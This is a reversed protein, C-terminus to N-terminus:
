QSPLAALLLAPSLGHTGVQRVWLPQGASSPALEALTVADMEFSPTSCTWTRVPRDPPGIGVLYSESEEVLPVEVDAPWLWAGRARRTWCSEFRGDATFVARPHVPSLPRLTRGPERLPATVPDADGPGIAAIDPEGRTAGSPAPVPTLRDDIMVVPAGAAHGDFAAAETGGRGRLLGEFRWRKAGIPTARAFQLIESGVLLRNAGRALAEATVPEFAADTTVLEAEFAASREIRLAPSPALPSVLTGQIANPRTTTAIRVLQGDISAFLGTSGSRGTATVAAFARVGDGAGFGDAPLEFFDLVTPGPLIDPLPSLGGADAGGAPAAGPVRRVLDLEVGRERWEWATVLWDGPHGPVRVIRGPAIRPDLEAMRWAIRDRQWRSRQTAQESLGKADQAALTAPLEITQQGTAPTPGVARQIGPQYDRAPDYYRIARPPVPASTARGALMGSRRGFDSDEWGRSAPPLSLAEAPEALDRFTLAQSGAECTLPYVSDIAQLTQVLPGGDRAFGQMGPLAVQSRALDDGAVIDAFAVESEGGHIEFSLAPIRNGFDTLDLDEFVAYAHQRFAPSAAGKDSAILPDVPQDGRGTHIRLTGGTKLDGAAGRLLNGDAWIRGIGAIPRSSLAVAFSVSYSYSTTEPRGKGGGESARTEALDTAWIISGALRMTGFVRPIPTGYSSTSIALDKLRPGERGPSGIIQSDIQRGALAGIAGGIPGGVLTGVASLLLTAM